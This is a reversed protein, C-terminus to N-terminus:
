SYPQACISLIKKKFDAKEDKKITEVDICVVNKEKSREFIVKDEEIGKEKTLIETFYDRQFISPVQKGGDVTIYYYTYLLHACPDKYSSSFPTAKKMPTILAKTAQCILKENKKLNETILKKEKFEAVKREFSQVALEKRYFFLIITGILLFLIM